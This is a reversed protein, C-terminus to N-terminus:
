IFPFSTASKEYKKRKQKIKEINEKAFMTKAAYKIICEYM